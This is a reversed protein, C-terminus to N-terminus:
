RPLLIGTLQDRRRRLHPVSSRLNQNADELAEGYTNIRSLTSAAKTDLNDTYAGKRFQISVILSPHSQAKTRM